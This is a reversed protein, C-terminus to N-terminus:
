VDDSTNNTHTNMDTNAYVINNNSTASGYPDANTRPRTLLRIRLQLPSIYRARLRARMRSIIVRVRIAIRELRPTTMHRRIRYTNTHTNINILHNTNHKTNACSYTHTITDTNTVIVTDTNNTHDAKDNPRLIRLRLIHHIM